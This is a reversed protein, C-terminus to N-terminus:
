SQLFASVTQAFGNITNLLTTLKTRAEANQVGLVGKTNLESIASTVQAFLSALNTKANSDAAARMAKLQKVFVQDASNVKLLAQTLVLEEDHTIQGKSALERKIKIMASIGGAIDDAAKAANRQPDPISAKQGGPCALAFLALALTLGSALVRRKM